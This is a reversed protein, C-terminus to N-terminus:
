VANRVPYTSGNIASACFAAGRTLLARGSNLSATCASDAAIAGPLSRVSSTRFASAVGQGLAQKAQVMTEHSYTSHGMACPVIDHASPRNAQDIEDDGEKRDLSQLCARAKTM